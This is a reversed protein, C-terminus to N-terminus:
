LKIKEKNSWNTTTKQVDVRLKLGFMLVEHVDIMADIISECFHKENRQNSKRELQIEDHVPLIIHEGQKLLSDVQLLAIKFISACTGSVVASVAKYAQGYPVHYRKGFWDEVYGIRGIESRLRNVYKDMSPFESKYKAIARRGEAETMGYMLCMTRLGLGYIQGYNLNKTRDREQKSYGEGYIFSAMYGHIDEGDMYPQVIREEDALIGFVALEIQSYDFYYNTYGLKPIFCRRVPNSKGSKRQIPEPVNQLNPDRSAMRGTMTDTPNISCYILGDTFEARQILPSLYTGIIKMSSRYDLLVKMYEVALSNSPLRLCASRLADVGTTLKGKVTLLHRPVKLEDILIKIVQGPSNVNHKINTLAQLVREWRHVKVILKRREVEATKIDFMLGQQEVKLILNMIERERKYLAAYSM